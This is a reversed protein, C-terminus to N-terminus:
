GSRTLDEGTTALTEAVDRLKKNMTQSAARLRDFADADSLKYREMLIGKAQGIVDRSEIAVRLSAQRLSADIVVSSHSALLVAVLMDDDSFADTSLAYMNLAGLVADGGDRNVQLRCALMSCVELETSVRRSFEPWRADVTLDPTYVLRKETAADVCPGQGTAYQIRDGQEAVRNTAGVTRIQKGQLLSVSAMECGAIVEVAASTLRCLAEDLVESAYLASAVDAFATVIDAGISSERDSAAPDIRATTM